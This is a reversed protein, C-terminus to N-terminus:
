SLIMERHIGFYIANQFINICCPLSPPPLQGGGRRASFNDAKIKICDESIVVSGRFHCIVWKQGMHSRSQAVLVLSMNQEINM